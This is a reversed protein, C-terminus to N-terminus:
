FYLALGTAGATGRAVLWAKNLGPPGWPAVGFYVCSGVGLAFQVISRVLVIEQFPFDHGSMKVMVSM